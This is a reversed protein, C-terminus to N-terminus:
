GWQIGKRGWKDEYFPEYISGGISFGASILIWIGILSKGNGTLNGSPLNVRMISADTM